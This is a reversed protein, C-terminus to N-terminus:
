RTQIRGRGNRRPSPRPGRAPGAMTWGPRKTGRPDEPPAQPPAHRGTGGGLGDASPALRLPPPAAAVVPIGLLEAAGSSACGLCVENVRLKRGGCIACPNASELEPCWGVLGIGLLLRGPGSSLQWGAAQDDYSAGLPRPDPLLELREPEAFLRLAARPHPAKGRPIWRCVPPAGHPGQPADNTFLELGLAAAARSSLTDAPGPPAKDWLELLEAGLLAALLEAAQKRKVGLAEAVSRMPVIASPWAALRRVHAWAPAEAQDPASGPATPLALTASM